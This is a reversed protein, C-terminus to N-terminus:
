DRQPEGRRGEGHGYVHVHPHAEYSHQLRAAEVAEAKSRFWQRSRLACEACIWRWLGAAGTESRLHSMTRLLIRPAARATLRVLQRM